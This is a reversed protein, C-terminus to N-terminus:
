ATGTLGNAHRHWPKQETSRGAYRVCTHFTDAEATRTIFHKQWELERARMPDFWDKWGNRDMFLMYQIGNKIFTAIETMGRGDHEPLDEAAQLIEETEDM